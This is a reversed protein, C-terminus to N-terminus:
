FNSPPPLESITFRYKGTPSPPIDDVFQFILKTDRGMKRSIKEKIPRLSAIDLQGAKVIYVYLSHLDTQVVQFKVIHPLGYFLHTFFEGHVFKRDATQIFDTQRGVIEKILPFGCGCKCEHGGVVALDGIEYRIFPMSYNVLDTVIVRGIEGVSAPVGQGDLIEVYRMPSIIHLGNHAACEAAINPIERSGYFDFLESGLTEEITRRYDEPLM